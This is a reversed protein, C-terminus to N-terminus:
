RIVELRGDLLDSLEEIMAVPPQWAFVGNAQGDVVPTNPGVMGRLFLYGIGGLHVEPRYGAIRHRLYRHLAVTYLISQLPYHNAAMAGALAEPRYHDLQAEEGFPTLRNTKYDVVIFRDTGDGNPVRAILDIFGELHGRLASRELVTGLQEAWDRLPDDLDMHRCLVAGIEAASPVELLGDPGRAGEDLDAGLNLQFRMENLRDGRAIDTLTRGDFLEGLPSRLCAALGDVLDTPEIPLGSREVNRTVLPLLHGELDDAAFDADELIDHVLTGFRNAGGFGALPMNPPAVASETPLEPGEDTGGLTSLDNAPDEAPATVGAHSGHSDRTLSSFSTRGNRRELARDLTAVALDDAKKPGSDDTNTARPAVIEVQLNGGSRSQLLELVPTVVAAKPEADKGVTLVGADSFTFSADQSRAFLVKSLSSSNTRSYGQWWIALHHSARTMAVYLLRLDEGSGEARAAASRDTPSLEGTWSLDKAIDVTRRMLGSDPDASAFYSPGNSNQGKFFMPLCVVPFELGKSVHATMIQVADADSEIRRAAPDDSGDAASKASDAFQDFLRLLGAPGINRPASRILLEAIHDIDTVNREGDATKLVTAIVSSSGRVARTFDAVGRNVLTESWKHFTEQVSGLKQDDANALEEADWGVFWSLTATRARRVDFPQAVAELLWRWHTAAESEMVSAGGTFVAAVGLRRLERQIPQAESKAKVLVAIDKAGIPRTGGPVESDPIRGHDVLAAIHSALDAVVARRAFRADHKNAFEPIRVSVPAFEVPADPEASIRTEAHAPTAAVPRFAIADSGFTLGDLLAEVGALVAADSRWNTQLEFRDAITDIARSYTHIDAGRFGYIAQKPDGVLVLRTDDASEGFLKNFIDWQVPDTDQFEDILAVKFRRRLTRRAADGADDEAVIADRLTTLLDDFSLTKAERRRQRLTAVIEDVLQRRVAADPQEHDAEPVVRIGPNGVVAWVAEKVKGVNLDSALSIGDLARAVFVDNCVQDLLQGGDDALVADPDRHSAVGLAGLMQQAFGHITSITASDFEAVATRARQLRRRLESEDVEPGALRVALADDGLAPRGDLADSLVGALGILRARVRDNLEAAAARTFTVMLLTAVPYGDEIIFRAALGALAFTKGTGASAEIVISGSPLPGDLRFPETM